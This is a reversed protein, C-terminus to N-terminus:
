LDQYENTKFKKLQNGGNYFYEPNVMIEFSNHTRKIINEKRLKTISTSISQESKGFKKALDKNIFNTVKNAYNMKNLIYFLIKFDLGSFKSYSDNIKNTFNKTTAFWTLNTDQEKQKFNSM